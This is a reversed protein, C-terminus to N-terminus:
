ILENEGERLFSTIELRFPSYGYKRGGAEQGNVWLTSNEMVGDFDLFYRRGEQPTMSWEKRYWGIGSGDRYGQTNGREMQPVPATDIVWDHPLVVPRFNEPSGYAFSWGTM